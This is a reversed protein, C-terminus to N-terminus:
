IKEIIPLTLIVKTGTNPMSRESIELTIKLGYLDNLLKVREETNTIGRSQHKKQNETKLAKSETLGIGDDEITISLNKGQKEVILRLTGLSGKYRLGHWIANELHPQLLMNPIFLSEKDLSDSITFTYNFVDSFRQHELELYKQLQTLEDGLTVFDKNSSEMMNRMLKSYSTLFKNAELENNEAIFQNVSNLSNFIFHPNMERRLSQLAIKKNKIRISYLAKVIFIILIALLILSGLLFFNFRNKKDILEDKLSKEKELQLIKKESIKLLSEESISTDAEQIKELNKFFDDYLDVIEKDKGNSRYYDVLLSVTKKVEISLGKEKAISYAEKLSTLAKDPAQKKLYLDSIVQLQTIESKFDKDKQAQELIEKNVDLAKDIENNSTYVTAIKNKISLAQPKDEAYKLATKYNQIAEESDERTLEMEAKQVYANVVEKELIEDQDNEGKKFTNQLKKDELLSINSDIYDSQIVPNDKNRLRNADNYNLQQYSKDNALSGAKEYNNIAAPIKLQKEQVQAIQRTIRLQDDTRKLNRYEKLAKNYFEEAKSFASIKEYYKGLDEYSKATSYPDNKSLGDEFKQVSQPLVIKKISKAKREKVLTSDQASVYFHVMIFFLSYIYTLHKM